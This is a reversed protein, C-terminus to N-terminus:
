FLSVVRKCIVCSPTGILAFYLSHVVSSKSGCGSYLFKIQKGVHQMRQCTLLRSEYITLSYVLISNWIGTLPHIFISPTNQCYM